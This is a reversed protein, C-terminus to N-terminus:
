LKRFRRFAALGALGSFCLLVTSPEPSIMLTATGVNVYQPDYGTPSAGDPVPPTTSDWTYGFDIAGADIAPLLLGIQAQTLTASWATPGEAQASYCAAAPDDCEAVEVAEENGAFGLYYDSLATTTGYLISGFSGSVTIGSAGAGAPLTFTFTGINQYTGDPFTTVFDYSDTSGYDGITATIEAHAPVILGLTALFSFSVLAITQKIM